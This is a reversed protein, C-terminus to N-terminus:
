MKKGSRYTNISKQINRPREPEPVKGSSFDSRLASYFADGQGDPLLERKVGGEKTRWVIELPRKDASSADEPLPMKYAREPGM